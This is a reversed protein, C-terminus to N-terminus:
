DGNSEEEKVLMLFINLHQINVKEPIDSKNIHHMVVVNDENLVSKYETDLGKMKEDYEPNFGISLGHYTVQNGMQTTIPEGDNDKKCYKVRTRQRSSEIEHLLELTEGYTDEIAHKLRILPVTLKTGYKEGSKFMETVGDYFQIMTKRKM